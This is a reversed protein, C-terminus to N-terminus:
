LAASMADVMCWSAEIRSGVWRRRGAPGATIITAM